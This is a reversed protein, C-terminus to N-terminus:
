VHDTEKGQLMAAVLLFASAAGSARVTRKHKPKLIGGYRSCFWFM